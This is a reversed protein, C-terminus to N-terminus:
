KSMGVAAPVPQADDECACHKTCLQPSFTLYGLLLLLWVVWASWLTHSLFHAGRMTQSWGMVAGLALGGILAVRAAVPRDDRWAFYFALLVFGASAHGGPFCHGPEIGAPLAEFLALHPAYGGYELLDWPCHHISAGKLTSIVVSTIAMSIWIWGLRRREPQLAPELFSVTWAGFVAVGFAIVLMKLASHMGITLWPENRLPFTHTAPDYYWSQIIQDIGTAPYIQWLLLGLGLPLVLHWWWFRMSHRRISALFNNM